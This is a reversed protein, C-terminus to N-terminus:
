LSLFNPAFSFFKSVEGTATATVKSSVWCGKNNNTANVSIFSPFFLSFVELKSTTTFVTTHTSLCIAGNQPRTNINSDNNDHM